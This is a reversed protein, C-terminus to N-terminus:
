WLDLRDGCDLKVERCILPLPKQQEARLGDQVLELAMCADYASELELDWLAGPDSSCHDQRNNRQTKM